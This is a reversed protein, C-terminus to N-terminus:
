VLKRMEARSLKGVPTKPLSERVEFGIIMEHKGLRPKLFEMLDDANMGEKLSVYAKAAEGRYDDPVGIVIAELVAPHEYIVQEIMQPYVNFGGSIIMDNKRDTLFFFGDEDMYGIDGTLFYGAKNFAKKTAEKQNLYGSFTNLSKIVLEGIENHEAPTNVDDLKVIGMVIGPLPLGITGKKFIHAPINSGSPSTETMGWGGGMHLKTFGAVKAGVEVPMPAGGSAANKLSSFDRTEIDPMAALAIWMTPVGPFATARKVEIDHLVEHPDFRLHLLVENGANINRLLVSTLAYIHFLPLVGIIKDEGESSFNNGEFWLKYSHVAATLNKHTLMAGKPLGTTGGTYQILAVTEPAVDVRAALPKHKAIFDKYSTVKPHSPLPVGQEGFAEVEGVIVRDVVGDDLFKVALALMSPFNVTFITRASADQLKHKLVREADLPSMHTLRVGAYSAGMFGFPHYPLNPLYLALTQGAMKNALLAAAFKRVEKGLAHFTIKEGRYDLASHGAYREVANDFMEGLSSFEIKADWKMDHPYSKEWAYPKTFM